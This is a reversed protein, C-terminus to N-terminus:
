GHMYRTVHRSLPLVYEGRCKDPVQFFMGLLFFPVQFFTDDTVESEDFDM